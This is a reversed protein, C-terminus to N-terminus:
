AQSLSEVWSLCSNFIVRLTNPDVSSLQSILASYLMANIRHLVTSTFLDNIPRGCIRAEDLLGYTATQLTSRLIDIVDIGQDGYPEVSDGDLFAIFDRVSTPLKLSSSAM